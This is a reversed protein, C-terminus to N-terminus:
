LHERGDGSPQFWNGYRRGTFSNIANAVGYFAEDRGIPRGKKDIRNGNADHPGGRGGLSHYVPPEKHFEGPTQGQHFWRQLAALYTQYSLVRRM